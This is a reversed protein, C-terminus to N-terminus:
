GINIVGTVLLVTLVAVGGIGVWAYREVMALRGNSAQVHGKLEVVDAQILAVIGEIKALRQSNRPERM